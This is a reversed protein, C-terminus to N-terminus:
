VISTNTLVHNELARIWDKQDDIITKVLDGISIIGIMQGDEIVPLHRFHRETMLALCKEIPEDPTTFFVPASMIERVATDKSSRGKLIVQTTYDRESIIGVLKGAEIVPLAGVNKDSMLKIAEFVTADMTTSWVDSGKVSLVHKVMKM